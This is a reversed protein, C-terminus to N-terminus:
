QLLVGGNLHLNFHKLVAARSNVGQRAQRDGLQEDRYYGEMVTLLDKVYAEDWFKGHCMYKQEETGSLLLGGKDMAGTVPKVDFHHMGTFCYPPMTLMWQDKEMLIGLVNLFLFDDWSDVRRRNYLEAFWDTHEASIFIPATCHVKPYICQDRGLDVGYKDQHDRGFNIVMGNSCTVIMGRAAARMFVRCSASLFMDCDMLCLADWDPAIEAALRFREIATAEVQHEGPSEVVTVGGREAVQALFEEPLRFSLLYVHSDPEFTRLSNLLAILGPRYNDSAAVVYCYREGIM